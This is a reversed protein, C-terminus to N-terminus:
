AIVLVYETHAFILIKANCLLEIAVPPLQDQAARGVASCAGRLCQISSRLLVFNLPSHAMHALSGTARSSTIVTQQQYLPLSPCHFFQMSSHYCLDM